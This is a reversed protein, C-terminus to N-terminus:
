KNQSPLEQKLYIKMISLEYESYWTEQHCNVTRFDDTLVRIDDAMSVWLVEKKSQITVICNSICRRWFTFKRKSIPNENIITAAMRRFYDRKTFYWPRICSAYVPYSDTHLNSCSILQLAYNFSVIQITSVRGQCLSWVRVHACSRVCM